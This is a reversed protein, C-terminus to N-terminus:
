KLSRGNSGRARTPEIASRIAVRAHVIIAIGNAVVAVALLLVLTIRPRGPAILLFPTLLLNFMGIAVFYGRLWPPLHAGALGNGIQAAGFGFLGLFLFWILTAVGFSPFVAVLFGLGTSAVGAAAKLARIPLTRGTSTVGLAIERIGLAMLAIGLLVLHIPIDASLTAAITFGALLSIGAVTWDFLRTRRWAAQLAVLRNSIPRM